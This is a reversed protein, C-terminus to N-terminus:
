RVAISMKPTAFLPENLPPWSPQQQSLEKELRKFLKKSVKKRRLKRLCGLLGHDLATQLLSAPPSCTKPLSRVGLLPCLRHWPSGQERRAWPEQFLLQESLGLLVVRM